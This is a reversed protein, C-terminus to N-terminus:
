RRARERACGRRRPTRLPDELDEPALGVEDLEPDERRHPALVARVLGRADVQLGERRRARADDLPGALVGADDVDAVAEGDRELHLRVVVRREDLGVLARRRADAADQAVDERHARPRHRREVREAEAPEVSRPHLVEDVADHAADRAVAVADADRRDAALRREVAAVVAVDEDVDHVEADDAGVADEEPAGLAGAVGDDVDARLGAAVADVARRHGGLLEGASSAFCFRGVTCTPSGKVSFSRM